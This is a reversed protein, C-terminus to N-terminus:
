EEGGWQEAMANHDYVRKVWQLFDNANQDKKAINCLKCCAVVNGSIYGKRSDIRDIGNYRFGGKCNKTIKLNSNLEGCYRCPTKIIEAVDSYTLDWERNLRRCHGKYGLIIQNIVGKNDPLLKAKQKERSICGCSKTNGSTVNAAQITKEKGCECQFLFFRRHHKGTYLYELATLRGFREGVEIFKQKKM